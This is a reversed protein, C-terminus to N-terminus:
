DCEAFTLPNPLWFEGDDDDDDDGAQVVVLTYCWQDGDAEMTTPEPGSRSSRDM